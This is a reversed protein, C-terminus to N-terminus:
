FSTETVTADLLERLIRFKEDDTAEPDIVDPHYYVRRTKGRWKITKGFKIWGLDRLINSLTNTGLARGGLDVIKKNLEDTLLVKTSVGFQGLEIAERVDAEMPSRGAEIMDLKDPTMPPAVSRDFGTLDISLLWSRIVGPNNRYAEHIKGWREDPFKERREAATKFRTRMVAWRRDDATLALADSHNSMAIYNTVNIADHGDKGKAVVFIKENTIFPKLKDMAETRRKGSVRIEDLVRVAAGTAWASFDSFLATTSVDKVNQVGMATALISAITTKGDGQVGILIPAWLIKLGPFQVNHAMWQILLDANDTYIYRIADECIQWAEHDKWDKAPEPVSSPIYSNVYPIGEISMIKADVTPMYMDRSVSIGHFHEMLARSPPREVMKADGGPKVVMCFPTISAFNLDFSVRPMREATDVNYFVNEARMFVWRRLQRINERQPHSKLPVGDIDLDNDDEYPVADAVGNAIAGGMSIDLNNTGEVAAAEDAHDEEAGATPAAADAKVPKAKSAIEGVEMMTDRMFQVIQPATWGDAIADACDWGKPPLGGNQYEAFLWRGPTTGGRPVDMLRVRCGLEILRNAIERMTQMGVEVGTEPHRHDADPWLIVDKGALPKWDAHRHGQAGGAWTVVPKQLVRHLADACKEGEVIIVQKADLAQRYQYLPRPKKFPFRSWCVTGNALEVQMVMPTEKGGDPLTRRLVYGYLQGNGTHYPYVAEPKFNGWEWEHGARKPNYLKVTKGVAIGGSAPVVPKIGAYIDRAKGGEVPKLPILERKGTLAEIAGPLNVGTLKMVFDAVDGKAGCGFCQFREVGDKGAFITFSPTDEKHFPCCGEWEQGNRQLSVGYSQAVTSLSYDRRIEAVDTM